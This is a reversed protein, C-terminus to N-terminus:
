MRRHIQLNDENMSKVNCIRVSILIYKETTMIHHTLIVKWNVWLLTLLISKASVVCQFISVILIMKFNTKLGNIEKM